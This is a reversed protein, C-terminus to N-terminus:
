NTTIHENLKLIITEQLNIINYIKLEKIDPHMQVIVMNKITMNYNNELIYKYINLQYSYHWYNTNTQKNINKPHTINKSRKWDIIDYTGDDNQFVMDITGCIKFIDDYIMWETRYPTRDKYIDKFQNFYTWEIDDRHVEINNYYREIDEHLLTGLNAAADRQINLKAKIQEKTLGKYRQITEPSTSRMINYVFIDESIPPFLIKIFATASIYDTQNNIIYKHEEKKMIINEDRLHKNTECLM